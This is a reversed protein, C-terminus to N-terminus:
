KTKIETKIKCNGRYFGRGEKDKTYIADYQVSDTPVQEKPKQVVVNIIETPFASKTLSFQGKEDTILTDGIVQNAYGKVVVKAGEISKHQKNVVKGSIEYTAYPVGYLAVVSTTQTAKKPTNCGALLAILGGLFTNIFQRIIM